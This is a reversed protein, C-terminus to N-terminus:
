DLAQVPAEGPASGAAEMASAAVWETAPAEVWEMAPENTAPHYMIENFVISTDARAPCVAAALGALALVFAKNM